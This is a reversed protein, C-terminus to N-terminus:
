GETLHLLPFPRGEDDIESRGSVVFGKASYFSMAAINQENVNVTLQKHLSRAHHLLASGVGRGIWEPAVFLADVHGGSLVLFGVPHGADECLVWTDLTALRLSRVSPVLATLDQQNLFTHSHSASRWWIDFLM